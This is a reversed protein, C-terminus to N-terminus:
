LWGSTESILERIKPAKQALKEPFFQSVLTDYFAIFAWVSLALKVWRRDFINRGILIRNHLVTLMVDLNRRTTADRSTATLGTGASLGYTNDGPLRKAEAGG